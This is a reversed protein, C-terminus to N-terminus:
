TAVNMITESAAVMLRNTDSGIEKILNGFLLMGVLPVSSPVLIS